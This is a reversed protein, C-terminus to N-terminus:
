AVDWGVHDFIYVQLLKYKDKYRQADKLERESQNFKAEMDALREQTDLLTEELANQGISMQGFDFQGFCCM